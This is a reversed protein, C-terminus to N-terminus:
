DEEIKWGLEPDRYARECKDCIPIRELKEDMRSNIIFELKENCDPCLIEIM